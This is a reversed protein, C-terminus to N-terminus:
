SAKEGTTLSLFVDELTEAEPALEHLVIGNRAALEGIEATRVGEVLLAGGEREVVVAHGLLARLRQAEPSRVLTRHPTTLAGVPAQKVLRGRDVVVVEDALQSIEGLQHSSVFVTGGGAAFDRLAARLWRIGAPDLGNAPEDLVLLRPEALLAAALGLRQRMGLSLHGAVRDAAEELDVAALVEDARASTVGREAALIRLHERASRAPHAGAGDLLAGVVRAPSRLEVYPVGEVLARGADARMLGLLIRLTTTKGAGNAGLFGTVKGRAVEFGLDDVAVSAGFRKTLGEVTVAAEAM